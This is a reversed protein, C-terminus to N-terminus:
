DKYNAVIKEITKGNDNMVYCVADFVITFEDGNNQRCILQIYDIYECKNCKEETGDGCCNCSPERDPILDLLFIDAQKDGWETMGNARYQKVKSVSIKAINDLMWWQQDKLYREIKLIM